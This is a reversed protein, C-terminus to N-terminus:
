KAGGVEGSSSFVQRTLFQCRGGGGLGWNGTGSFDVLEFVRSIRRILGLLAVGAAEQM